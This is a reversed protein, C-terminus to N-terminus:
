HADLMIQGSYHHHCVKQKYRRCQDCKMLDIERKTKGTLPQSSSSPGSSSTTPVINRRETDENIHFLNQGLLHELSAPVSPGVIEMYDSTRGDPLEQQVRSSLLSTDQLQGLAETRVVSCAECGSSSHDCRM